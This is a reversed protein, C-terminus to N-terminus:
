RSHLIFYIVLFAMALYRFIQAYKDIKFGGMKNKIYSNSLFLWCLGAIMGADGFCEIWSKNSISNYITYLMAISFLINIFLLLINKLHNPM